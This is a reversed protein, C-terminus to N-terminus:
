QPLANMDRLRLDQIGRRSRREICCLIRTRFFSNGSLTMLQTVTWNDVHTLFWMKEGRERMMM